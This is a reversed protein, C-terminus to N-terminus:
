SARYVDFDINEVNEKEKEERELEKKKFSIKGWIQEVQTILKKSNAFKDLFNLHTNRDLLGQEDFQGNLDILFSSLEFCSSKM